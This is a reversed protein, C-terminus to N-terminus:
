RVPTPVPLGSHPRKSAFVRMVPLVCGVATAVDCRAVVAQGFVLSAVGEPEAVRDVLSSPYPPGTGALM